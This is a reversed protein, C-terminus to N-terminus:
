APIHALAGKSGIKTYSLGKFAPIRESIEKFVEEATAFKMKSGLASAVAAIIRWSSRADRKTGKGWADNQAAFKDWRSMSMGDHAREQEIMAVAPVLRQVRGQFNTLTGHKEAFTSSSFVIDAMATTENRVSSHVILFELLHLVEAVQPDAAINDDLLYLAKISGEKIGKLIHEIGAPQNMTVGVL